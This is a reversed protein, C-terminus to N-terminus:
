QLRCCLRCHTRPLLLRVSQVSQRAASGLGFSAGSRCCLCCLAGAKLPRSRMASHPRTGLNNLASANAAAAQAETRKLEEVSIPWVAPASRYPQLASSDLTLFLLWEDSAGIQTKADSM